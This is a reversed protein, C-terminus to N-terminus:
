IDRVDSWATSDAAPRLDLAGLDRTSREGCIAHARSRRSLTAITEITTRSTMTPMAISAGTIVRSTPTVGFPKLGFAISM